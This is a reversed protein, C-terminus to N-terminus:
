VATNACPETQLRLVSQSVPKQTSPTQQSVAQPVPSGVSQWAQEMEAPAGEFPVQAPKVPVAQLSPALQVRRAVSEAAESASVGPLVLGFEDGGTRAVCDKIM